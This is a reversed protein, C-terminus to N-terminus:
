SPVNVLEIIGRPRTAIAQRLESVRTCRRLHCAAEIDALSPSGLSVPERGLGVVVLLGPDARMAVSLSALSRGLKAENIMAVVAREPEAARMGVAAAVADLTQGVWIFEEPSRCTLRRLPEGLGDVVFSREQPLAAQLTALARAPTLMDDRAAAGPYQTVGYPHAPGRHSVRELMERLFVEPPATVNIAISTEAVGAVECRSVHIMTRGARLQCAQMLHCGLTLVTEPVEAAIANASPNGRPGLVGVALPHDEPFVGKAAPSTAVPAQLFEALELLLRPGMGSRVDSGVYILKSASRELAWAAAEGVKPRVAFRVAPAHSMWPSQISAKLLEPPTLFVAPGQGLGRAMSLAQSVVNPMVPAHDLVHVQACVTPLAALLQPVLPADQAVEVLLVIPLISRQAIALSGLTNLAEAPTSLRLVAVRRSVIAYAVAASAAAHPSPLSLRSLGSNDLAAGLPGNRGSVDFVVRAGAEALFRGLVEGAPENLDTNRRHKQESM